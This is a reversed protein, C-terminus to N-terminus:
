SDVTLSVLPFSAFFLAGAAHVSGGGGEHMFLTHRFLSVNVRDEKQFQMKGLM